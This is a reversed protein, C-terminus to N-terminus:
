GVVLLPCKVGSLLDRFARGERALSTRPVVILGSRDQLLLSALRRMEGPGRPLGIRRARLRREALWAQVEEDMRRMEDGESGLLVVVLLSDERTRLSVAAALAQLGAPTGDYLVHITRGLRTGRRLVMVPGSGVELLARVTSGPGRRLSHGTAGLIVLDAEEVRALLESAVRGRVSRFSWRVGISDAMRALMQRVRAAQVRLQRELEGSQLPRPAASLFDIELAFPHERAHMLDTDEVYLGLLEAEIAAALEASAALAALSDPSADLAVLIRRIAGEPPGSM